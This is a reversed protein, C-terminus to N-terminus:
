DNNPQDRKMPANGGRRAVLELHNATDLLYKAARRYSDIMLHLSFLEGSTGASFHMSSLIDPSYSAPLEPKPRMPDSAFMRHNLLQEQNFLFDQNVSMLSAPKYEVTKMDLEEDHSIKNNDQQMLQFHTNFANQEVTASSSLTRETEKEGYNLLEQPMNQKPQLPECFTAISELKRKEVIVSEEQKVIVHKEEKVKREKKNNEDYQKMRRKRGRIRNVSMSPLVDSAVCGVQLIANTYNELHLDPHVLKSIKGPPIKRVASTISVNKITSITDVVMGGTEKSYDVLQVGRRFYGLMEKAKYKKNDVVIIASESPAYKEVPHKELYERLKLQVLDDLILFPEHPATRTWLAEFARSYKVNFGATDINKEAPSNNNSSESENNDNNNTDINNADNNNTDSNISIPYLTKDPEDKDFFKPNFEPIKPLKTSFHYLVEFVERIVVARRYESWGTPVIGHWTAAVYDSATPLYINIAVSSVPYIRELYSDLEDVYSRMHRHMIDMENGVAELKQKVVNYCHRTIEKINYQLDSNEVRTLRFVDQLPGRDGSWFGRTAMKLLTHEHLTCLASAATNEKPPSASPNFPPGGHARKSDVGSSVSNKMRRKRIQKKQPSILMIERSKKDEEKVKVLGESLFTKADHFKIASMQKRKEEQEQTSLIKQSEQVLTEFLSSAKNPIPNIRFLMPPQEPISNGSTITSQRQMNREQNESDVNENGRPSVVDFASKNPESSLNQLLDSSPSNIRSLNPPETQMYFPSKSSAPSGSRTSKICSAVLEKMSSTKMPYSPIMDLHESRYHKSYAPSTPMFMEHRSSRPVGGQLHMPNFSTNNLFSSIYNSKSIPAPPMSIAHSTSRVQSFSSTTSLHADNSKEHLKEATTALCDLADMNTKSVKSDM